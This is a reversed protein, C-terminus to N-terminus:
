PGDDDAAHDDVPAFGRTSEDDFLIDRVKEPTVKVGGGDVSPLAWPRGSDRSQPYRELLLELGRRVAEALTM